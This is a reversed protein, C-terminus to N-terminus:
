TDEQFRDTPLWPTGGLRRVTDDWSSADGPQLDAATWRTATPPVTGPSRKMIQGVRDITYGPLDDTAWEEPTHLTVREPHRRTGDTAHVYARVIEGDPLRYTEGDPVTVGPFSARDTDTGADDEDPVSSM